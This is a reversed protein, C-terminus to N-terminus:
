FALCKEGGGRGGDRGPWPGGGQVAAVAEQSKHRGGHTDGRGRAGGTLPTAEHWEQARLTAMGEWKMRFLLGRKELTTGQEAGQWGTEDAARGKGASEAGAM